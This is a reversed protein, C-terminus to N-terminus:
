PELPTISTAVLRSGETPITGTVVVRDNIELRQYEDQAVHTLDVAISQGDDTAAALTQGAVWLVRLQVRIPVEDAAGATTSLGGALVLAALAAGAWAGRADRWGM